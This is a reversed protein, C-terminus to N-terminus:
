EAQIYLLKKTEFFSEEFYQEIDVIEYYGGIKHLEERLDGGKLAILGNPMTNIHKKRFKQKTWLMLKEFRAVARCVVFDFKGPVNEAREQYVRVNKLGLQSAVEQVVKTKKGISDVLTFSVEPFFIALPIGPFGGGTGIDMIKSHPAFHIFRAIALSHLVHREELADIDKRSILNIKQNWEKYLPALQAFQDMQDDTLNPFYKQILKM